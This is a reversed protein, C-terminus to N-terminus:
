REFPAGHSNLRTEFRSGLAMRAHEANKPSGTPSVKSLSTYEAIRKKEEEERKTSLAGGERDKGEETRRRCETQRECIVAPGDQVV